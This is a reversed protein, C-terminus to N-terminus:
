AVYKAAKRVAISAGLAVFGALGIL